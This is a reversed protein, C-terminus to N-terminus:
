SLPSILTIKVRQLIQLSCFIEREPFTTQSKLLIKSNDCGQLSWLLITIIWCLRSLFVAIFSLEWCWTSLSWKWWDLLMLDHCPNLIQQASDPTVLLAAAFHTIPDLEHIASTIPLKRTLSLHKQQKCGCAPKKFYEPKRTPSPVTITHNPTQKCVSQSGEPPKMTFPNLLADSM